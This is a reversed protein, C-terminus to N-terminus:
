PEQDLHVSALCTLAAARPTLRASVQAPHPVLPSCEGVSGADLRLIVVPHPRVISWQTGQASRWWWQHYDLRDPVTMLQCHVLVAAQLHCRQPDSLVHARAEQLLCCFGPWSYTKPPGPQTGPRPPVQSSYYPLLALCIMDAPRPGTM